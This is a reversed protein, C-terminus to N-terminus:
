QSPFSVDELLAFCVIWCVFLALDLPFCYFSYKLPTVLVISAFVSIAAMSISYLLRSDSTGGFMNLLRFFKALLGLVIASCGLEFVRLCSYVIKHAIAM